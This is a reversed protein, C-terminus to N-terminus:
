GEPKLLVLKLHEQDVPRLTVQQYTVPGWKPHNFAREGGQRELVYHQKWFRAFEASGKKLEEVLRVLAPEDLRTRCDARFEATIRRARTEWDALFKRTQPRLFVFRLLNRPPEHAKAPKDLWGAFLAAAAKNWALMDWTRGMIYAPIGIDALMGILLESAADEELAAGHPDRRGALEFVYARAGRSLRLTRALRDLVDASVNAERGQEIWTYWTPSIGALQAVEERRLGKARRRSGAPFGFAEPACRGRLVQLFEGLEKRRKDM